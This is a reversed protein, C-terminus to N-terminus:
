IAVECVGSPLPLSSSSACRASGVQGFIQGTITILLNISALHKATASSLAYSRDAETAQPSTQRKASTAM